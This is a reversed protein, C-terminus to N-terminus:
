AAKRPPASYTPDPNALAYHVVQRLSRTLTPYPLAWDPVDCGIPRVSVEHGPRDGAPVPNVACPVRLEDALTQAVWRVSYTRSAGIHVRRLAKEVTALHLLGEALNDVHMFPRAAWADDSRQLPIPEGLRLKRIVTPIFKNPQQHEGFLSQTVVVTSPVDSYTACVVEQCAKAGGYPGVPPHAENTSVHLVRADWKRAFEMTEVMIRTSNAYAGAPDSIAEAPDATAALSVVLDVPYWPFDGNLDLPEVDWGANGFAQTVHRGVFGASGTVLVRM